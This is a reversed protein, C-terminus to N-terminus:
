DSALSTIEDFLLHVEEIKGKYEIVISNNSSSVINVILPNSNELSLVTLFFFLGAFAKLKTSPDIECNPMAECFAGDRFDRVFSLDIYEYVLPYDVIFLIFFIGFTISLGKKLANLFNEFWSYRRGYSLYSVQKIPIRSNGSVISLNDKDILHTLKSM